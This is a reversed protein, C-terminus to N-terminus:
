EQQEKKDGSTQTKNSKKNPKNNQKSLQVGQVIAATGTAVVGAGGIVTAAVWGNKSKKCRLMESDIQSIEDKLQEVLQQKERIQVDLDEDAFVPLNILSFLCLL